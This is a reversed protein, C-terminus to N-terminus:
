KQLDRGRVGGETAEFYAPYLGAGLKNFLNARSGDNEAQYTFQIPAMSRHIAHSVVNRAARQAEGLAPLLIGVLLAISAIGVLLEVSHVWAAFNSAERM